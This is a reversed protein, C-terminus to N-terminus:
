GTGAIKKGRPQVSTGDPEATIGIQDFQDSESLPFSLIGTGNENPTFIGANEREGDKLLWVQYVEQDKLQPLNDMQVILKETKGEKIVAALGTLQDNTLDAAKVTLTNTIKTPAPPDLQSDGSYFSYTHLILYLNIAALVILLGSALPTFQEKLSSFWPKSRKVPSRNRDTEFVYDM